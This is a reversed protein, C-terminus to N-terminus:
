GVLASCGSGGGSSDGRHFSDVIMISGYEIQLIYKCREYVEVSNTFGVGM